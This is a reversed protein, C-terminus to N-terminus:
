NMDIEICDHKKGFHPKIFEIESNEFEDKSWQTIDHHAKMLPHSLKMDNVHWCATCQAGKVIVNAVCPEHPDIIFGKKKMAKALEIYFLM